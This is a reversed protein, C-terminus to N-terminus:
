KGCYIGCQRIGKGVYDVAIMETEDTEISYPLARFKLDTVDEGDVQM